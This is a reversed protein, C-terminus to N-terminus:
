YGSRDNEQMYYHHGRGCYGPRECSSVILALAALVMLTM